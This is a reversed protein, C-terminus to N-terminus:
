EGAKIDFNDPVCGMVPGTGLLTSAVCVWQVAARHSGSGYDVSLEDVDLVHLCFALRPKQRRV